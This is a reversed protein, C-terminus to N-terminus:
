IVQNSFQLYNTYISAIMVIKNDMSDHIILLWVHCERYYKLKSYCM